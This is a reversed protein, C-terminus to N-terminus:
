DNMIDARLYTLIVNDKRSHFADKKGSGFFFFIWYIVLKLSEPSIFLSSISFMTPFSM